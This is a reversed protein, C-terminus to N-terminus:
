QRPTSSRLQDAADACATRRSAGAIRARCIGGAQPVPQAVTDTDARPSATASATLSCETYAAAIHPPLGTAEGLHLLDRALQNSTVVSFDRQRVICLGVPTASVVIHNITESELAHLAEDHWNRLLRMGWFKGTLTMALVLLLALGAIAGLQPAASVILARWPVVTVLLNRGPTLADVFVAGGRTYCIGGSRTHEALARLRQTGSADLPPSAVIPRHHETGLLLMTSGPPRSLPALIADAPITMAILVAPVNDSRQMSLATVVPVGLLPDAYTGVMVYEGQALTRRGTQAALAGTITERLSMALAADLTPAMPETRPDVGPLILAYDSDLGILLV